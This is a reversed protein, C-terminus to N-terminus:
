DLNVYKNKIDLLEAIGTIGRITKAIIVDVIGKRECNTDYFDDRYVFMITDAYNVIASSNKLDSLVPRKDERSELEKSLQSLVIIPINLEKALAKLRKITDEITTDSKILQLYDIVILGIDKKLKLKVAKREIDSINLINDCIYLKEELSLLNRATEVFNSSITSEVNMIRNKILGRSNDLSFILTPIQQKIVNSVINLILTEKGVTPRSAICILDSLVGTINDINKYGTEIGM